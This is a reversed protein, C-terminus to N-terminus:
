IFPGHSPRSLLLITLTGSFFLAMYIFMADYKVFEGLNPLQLFNVIWDATENQKPDGAVVEHMGDGWSM